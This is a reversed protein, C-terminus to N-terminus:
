PALMKRPVDPFVSSFAWEGAMAALLKGAEVVKTLMCLSNMCVLLVVVLAHHAVESREMGGHGSGVLKAAATASTNTCDPLSGM